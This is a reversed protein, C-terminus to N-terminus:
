SLPKKYLLYMECKVDKLYNIYNKELVKIEPNNNVVNEFFDKNKLRYSERITFIIFGEIEVHDILVNIHKIPAHGELFVGCSVIVNYLKDLPKKSIDQLYLLDYIKKEKAKDLMGKCIDVGELCCPINYNRIEKGLLGTGCGFDLVKFKRYQYFYNFNFVMRLLRTAVEKPGEYNQLSVDKEYSNCWKNYIEIKNENNNMSASHLNNISTTLKQM